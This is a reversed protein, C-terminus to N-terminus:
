ARWKTFFISTRNDKEYPQYYVTVLSGDSLETTAPYGLDGNPADSLIIEEGFTRCGDYSISARIGFPARRRGYTVVVSGDKRLLLHPPSGIRDFAWPRSWTNGGDTSSMFYISFKGVSAEDEARIAAILEGSPLEVVTPEHLRRYDATDDLPLKSIKQWTEGDDFSEYLYMRERDEPSFPDNEEPFSAHYRSALGPFERGLYLLRGSVTKVPGHPASIDTKIAEGWSKGYDKSIKIFAGARNQEPTYHEYAQLFGELLAKWQPEADGLIWDRWITRYVEAPHCFYSLIMKGGGLYTLGADRDDLWTDNIVVPASWSEGGDRSISMLDKGFPCVHQARLGSWAAYLVGDEDQCISPWAQYRFPGKTARFVLGQKLIEM